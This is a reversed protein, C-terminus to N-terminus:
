DLEIAQGRSAAKWGPSRSIHSAHHNNPTIPNPRHRASLELATLRGVNFWEVDSPGPAALVRRHYSIFPPFLVRFFVSPCAALSLVM